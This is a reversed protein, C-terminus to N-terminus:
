KVLLHAGWVVIVVLARGTVLQQGSKKTHTGPLYGRQKDLLLLLLVHIFDVDQFVFLLDEFLYGFGKGIHLPM